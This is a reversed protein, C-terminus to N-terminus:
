WPGVGFNRTMCKRPFARALPARGRRRSSPFSSGCIRSLGVRSGRYLVLLAFLAFFWYNLLSINYLQTEVQKAQEQVIKLLNLADVKFDRDGCFGRWRVHRARRRYKRKAQLKSLAPTNRELLIDPTWKRNMREMICTTQSLRPVM